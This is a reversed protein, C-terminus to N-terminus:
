IAEKLALINNNNNNKIIVQDPNSKTVHPFHESSPKNKKNKKINVYIFIISYLATM